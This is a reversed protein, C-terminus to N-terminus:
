RCEIRCKHFSADDQSGYFAFNEPSKSYRCEGPASPLEYCDKNNGSDCKLATFYNGSGGSDEYKVVSKGVYYGTRSCNMKEHNLRPDNKGFNECSDLKVYGGCNDAVYEGCVDGSSKATIATLPVCVVSLKISDSFVVPGWCNAPVSVDVEYEGLPLEISNAKWYNHEPAMNNIAIEKGDGSKAVVKITSPNFDCGLTKEINVRLAFPNAVEIVSAPATIAATTAPEIITVDVHPLQVLIIVATGIVSLNAFPMWKLRFKRFAGPKDKRGSGQEKEEGM